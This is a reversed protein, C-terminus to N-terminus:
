GSERLLLSRSYTRYMRRHHRVAAARLHRQRDGVGLRHRVSQLDVLAVRYVM